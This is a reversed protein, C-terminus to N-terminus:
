AAGFGCPGAGCATIVALSRQSGGGEARTLATVRDTGNWSVLAPLLDDATGARGDPGVSTVLFRSRLGLAAFAQKREQVRLPQGWPDLLLREPLLRELDAQTIVVAARGKQPPVTADVALSRLAEPAALARYVADMRRDAIEQALTDFDSLESAELIAKTEIRRGWPDRGDAAPLAGSAVMRAVLDRRFRWRGDPAREGAQHSYVWKEAVRAIRDRQEERKEVRLAWPDIEWGAWPASAGALLIQAAQDRLADAAGEEVLREVTYGGPKVALARQPRTAEATLTFYARAAGASLPRLALLAQDVMVLGVSARTGAGTAADVVKLRLRGAEGPRYVDRDPRVEVRL